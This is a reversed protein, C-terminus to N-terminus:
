SDGAAALLAGAIQKAGEKVLDVTMSIGNEVFAKKTKAWVSDSRISDLLEHGAWTLKRAFFGKVEPGQTKHIQGEVLGAEILLAMHYSVEAHREAGFQALQVIETPLTCKEVELLLERITDWNRKM